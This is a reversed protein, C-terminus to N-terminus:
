DWRKKQPPTSNISQKSYTVNLSDNFINHNDAHFDIFEEEDSFYYTVGNLKVLKNLANPIQQIDAKLASDSTIYSGRSYIHGDGRVFFRHNCTECGKAVVYAKSYDSNVVTIMTNDWPGMNNTWLRAEGNSIVKFQGFLNHVIIISIILLYIKKM